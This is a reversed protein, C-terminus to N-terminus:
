LCVCGCICVVVFVCSWFCVRGCVCVDVFVSRHVSAQDVQYWGNGHGGALFGRHRGRHQAHWQRANQLPNGSSAM